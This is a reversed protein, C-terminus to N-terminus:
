VRWLKKCARSQKPFKHQSSLVGFGHVQRFRQRFSVKRFFQKALFFHVQFFTRVLSALVKRFFTYGIKLVQSSWVFCVSCFASKAFHFQKSVLVMVSFWSASKPFRRLNSGFSISGFVHALKRSIFIQFVAM